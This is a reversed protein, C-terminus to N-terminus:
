ATLDRCYDALPSSAAHAALAAGVGAATPAEAGAPDVILTDGLLAARADEPRAAFISLPFAPPSAITSAGGAHAAGAADPGFVAAAGADAGTSTAGVM